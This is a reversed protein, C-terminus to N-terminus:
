ERRRDVTGPLKRPKKGMKRPKKRLNRRKRGWKGRTKWPGTSFIRLGRRAAPVTMSPANELERLDAEGIAGVTKFHKLLAKARAEGIGPISPSPPPCRRGSGSSGTTASPSGTCRTRSPQCCPSPGAPPSYPSREGPSPWPGPATATPGEGPRLPPRGGGDGALVPEVAAVHGKGGDLLILDPMRGFGEEEGRRQAAKYEEFRRRDGGAHIRLDDQGTVTKIKFKRYASKLPGATKSCWWARWTREGRSTPSTTASSTPRPRRWAGAAAPDRGLGLGGPRHKGDAQRHAGGREAPVDAGAPAAGGAPARPAEGAPGPAPLAVPGGAGPGGGPGDLAIVPPVRDRIAYTSACFSRGPRRTPSPLGRHPLEGPRLAQGGPVPVGRVPPTPDGGPGPRVRGAGGGPQGGGEPAGENEPHRRHPGRLRAALEFEM